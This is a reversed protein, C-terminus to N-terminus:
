LEAPRETEAAPAPWLRAVGFPGALGDAHADAVGDVADIALDGLQGAVEAVRQAGAREARISRLVRDVPLESPRAEAARAGGPGGHRGRPMVVKILSGPSVRSLPM